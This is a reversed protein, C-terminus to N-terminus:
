RGPEDPWVYKHMQIQLRVQLGDRLIWEALEKPKLRSAVPAFLVKMTIDKVCEHIFRKAYEYDRRDAIVFKVEDDDTIHRLNDMLFSGAHGSSPCKVDVIKILRSDLKSLCVTGNTELLVKYGADLLRVALPRAEDQVLPEGGTIELLSCKYKKVEKVIQDITFKKAKDGSQAYATDCWGCTLNCGALRIFVCSLGMHTSEGQISRFIESVLM